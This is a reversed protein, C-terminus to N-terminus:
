RTGLYYTFQIMFPLYYMRIHGFCKLQIKMTINELTKTYTTYLKNGFSEPKWSTSKSM